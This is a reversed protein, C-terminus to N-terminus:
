ESIDFELDFSLGTKFCLIVSSPTGLFQSKSAAM